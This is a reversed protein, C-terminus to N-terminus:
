LEKYEGYMSEVLARCKKLAAQKEKETLHSSYVIKDEIILYNTMGNQDIFGYTKTSTCLAWGTTGSNLLDKSWHYKEPNIGLQILLTKALDSQSGIKDIQKGQYEPKLAGGLLLLPIHYFGENFVDDNFCNARSHDAVLVVLTNEYDPLSRLENIFQGVQKDAYNMSSVFPDGNYGDFPPAPMDYPPHTSQTFLGYFYPRKAAKIEGLLWPFMAEDHIGLKGKPQLDLDNEDTLKDFGADRLYGGINGYSLSGGFAYSSTYGLKDLDKALSPLNRCKASETSISIGPVAPYGSIIASHGTESTGSRAYIKTFLLGDKCLNNFNPTIGPKGGLPEIMQTSWGELTILIINPNRCSLITETQSSDTAFLEQVISEAEAPDLRHFYQDLDSGLYLYCTNLFNWECNVSLDNVIQKNSFYGDTASVPIAQVGGRIGLIYLPIGIILYIGLALFRKWVNTNTVKLRLRGFMKNYIFYVFVLQLLLYLFFWFTNGTSATRFIESPTTFHIFIKSSLKSKWETYTVIEAAMVLASVVFITWCYFAIFKNLRDLAKGGTFLFGAGATLFILGSLYCFASVDLRFGHFLTSLSESYHGSFDGAFHFFFLLRQFQFFLLFTLFLKGVFLLQAKVM